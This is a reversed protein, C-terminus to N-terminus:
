QNVTRVGYLAFTSTSSFSGGPVQFQITNIAATSRWLNVLLDTGNTAKAVRNLITKYTSTNAYNLIHLEATQYDGSIGPAAFYDTYGNTLNTGRSSVASSGNGGLVTYSYNTGTDLTGNGVRFVGQNVTGGTQGANIVVLLDQYNQPISTFTVSAASTSLVQYAIPVLAGHMSSASTSALSVPM